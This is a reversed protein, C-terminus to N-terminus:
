SRCLVYYCLLGTKTGASNNERNQTRFSHNGTHINNDLCYKIEEVAKKGAKINDYNNMKAIADADIIHGLLVEQGELVGRLSSKGTGNVGAIIIYRNM